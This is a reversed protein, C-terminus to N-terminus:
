SKFCATKVKKALRYFHNGMLTILVGRLSPYYLIERLSKIYYTRAESLEGRSQYYYGIGYLNQAIKSRASHLVYKPVDSKMQKRVVRIRNNTLSVGRHSISGHQVRYKYGIVDLFGLPYQKAIRFWMDWDDANTLSEDFLGVDDFVSRRVIVSSTPVFNERFLLHFSDRAEIVYSGDGIHTKDLSHFEKHKSLYRDGAVKNDSDMRVADAFVMGIDQNIDLCLSAKGILGPLMIDDSDFLSIYEGNAAKVGVNRPRSPGGHNERLRIYSIAPNGFSAVVEETNDTSADDVIIIEIDKFDQALVSQISEVLYEAANFAPIVVSVKPM